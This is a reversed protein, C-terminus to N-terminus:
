FLVSLTLSGSRPTGRYDKAPEYRTQGVNELRFAWEALGAQGSVALDAVVYDDNFGGGFVNRESEYRIDSTVTFGAIQASLAYNATYLPYAQDWTGDSTERVARTLNYRHDLELATFSGSFEYGYRKSKGRNSASGGFNAFGLTDKVESQFLAVRLNNGFKAGFELDTSQEPKLNPNGAFEQDDTFDGDGNEDYGFLEFDSPKRESQALQIFPRFDGVSRVVGLSWALDSDYDSSDNLRTALTVDARNTAILTEAFVAYDTVERRGAFDSGDNDKTAISTGVSSKAFLPLQQNFEFQKFVNRYAASFKDQEADSMVADFKWPGTRNMGELSASFRQNRFESVGEDYDIEGNETSGGLTLDLNGLAQTWVFSLGEDEYGDNDPNSGTTTVDFGNSRSGIASLTLFGDNTQLTHEVSGHRTAFSGYSATVRTGLESQDRTTIIVVGGTARAGFQAAGNGKVVEIRKISSPPLLSVDTYGNTGDTLPVGDVIVLVDKQNANRLRLHGPNSRSTANALSIGAIDRLVSNLNTYGRQQIQDETVVTISRGSQDETLGLRTSEYTIVIPDIEAQVASVCCVAVAAAILSKKM